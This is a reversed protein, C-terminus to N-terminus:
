EQGIVFDQLHAITKNVGFHRSILSTHAERIVHVRENMPICLKGLHYLIKDHLHYDFAESQKGNKLTAYIEKFDDDNDYQGIYGEHSIANHKLITSANIIPSSLLYDVKNHVGKKYIVVLHFQQLFGM